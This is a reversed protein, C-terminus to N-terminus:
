NRNIVLNENDLNLDINLKNNWFQREAETIHRSMDNIHEIFQNNSDQASNLFPIDILFAKGDGIKIGPLYIEEGDKEIVKYDSYIYMTGKKSPYFIDNNWQDCTKAQYVLNNSQLKKIKSWLLAVGMSDLYKPM